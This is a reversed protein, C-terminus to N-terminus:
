GEASKLRQILPLIEQEWVQLTIPGIHKHAVHGDSSIVFTEPAGYVGYDICVRGDADVATATYPDGLQDLWRLAATNEDKWNLGYIPVLGSKAISLLMDHEHRCAVCWTAWVNILSVRGELDSLSFQAEPNRLRPLSFPPAPKGVLPSPVITPDRSLGLALFVVLAIFVAGPLIFRIM